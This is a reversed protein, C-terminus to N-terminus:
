KRKELEKNLRDVQKIIQKTTKIIGTKNWKKIDKIKWQIVKKTYIRPFISKPVNDAVIIVLDQQTLLKNSTARPKGKLNIKLEKVVKTTKKNMPFGEFLGSSEAKIKKNKNIKKFYAEAIKSKFRNNKCIFLINKQKM